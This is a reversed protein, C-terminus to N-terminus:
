AYTLTLSHENAAVAATDSDAQGTTMAFAIGSAFPLGNPWVLQQQSGAPLLITAIPTDTGVTPASAKDYLKLYRAAANANSITVTYVQGASAKVSVANTTNTSIRRHVSGGTPGAVAELAVGQAEAASKTHSRLATTANVGSTPAITISM